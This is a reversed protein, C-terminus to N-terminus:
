RVSFWRQLSLAEEADTDPEPETSLYEGDFDFDVLPFPPAFRPRIDLDVSVGYPLVESCEPNSKQETEAEIQKAM